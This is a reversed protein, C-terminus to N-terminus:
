LTITQFGLENKCSRGEEWCDLNYITTEAIRELAEKTAFAHHPTLLVNPLDILEKLQEDAIGSKGNDKFFVGREQEYVDTAYGGLNGNKLATIVDNTKVIGGRATNVLLARKKM